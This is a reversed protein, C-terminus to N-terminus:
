LLYAYYHKIKFVFFFSKGVQIFDFVDTDNANLLCFTDFGRLKLSNFFNQKM